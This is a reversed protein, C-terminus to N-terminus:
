GGPQALWADVAAERQAMSQDILTMQEPTLVQRAEGAIGAMAVAIDGVTEGLAAAERRITAEDPQEAMVAARLARKHAVVEAALPTFEAKHAALMARLEGRQADTLDLDDKLVMARAIQGRILKMFPRGPQDQPDAAPQGVAWTAAVGILVVATLIAGAIMVRRATM